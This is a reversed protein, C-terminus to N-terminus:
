VACDTGEWWDWLIAACDAGEWWEWLNVARDNGEWLDWIVVACDTGERWDWLIATCDTGEWWDWQIAVCDAGEWWDCLIAAFDVGKGCIECYLQAKVGWGGEREVFRATFSRLWSEKWDSLIDVCDARGVIECYPRMILGRSWVPEDCPVCM